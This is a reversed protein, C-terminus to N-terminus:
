RRLARMVAAIDRLGSTGGTRVVVFGCLALLAIFCVCLAGALALAIPWAHTALMAGLSISAGPVGIKTINM